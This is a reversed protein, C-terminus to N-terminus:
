DGSLLLYQHIEFTDIFNILKEIHDSVQNYKKSFRLLEDLFYKIQIMNFVTNGYPDICNLLYFDADETKLYNLIDAFNLEFDEILNFNEDVKQIGIHQM